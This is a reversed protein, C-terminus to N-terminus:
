AKLMAVDTANPQQSYVLDWTQSTVPYATPASSAAPTAFTLNPAITAAAADTSSGTTSPAVYKGAKNQVPAYTPGAAKADAYDVYGIAGPLRGVGIAEAKNFPM